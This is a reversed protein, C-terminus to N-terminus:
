RRRLLRKVPDRDGQLVKKVRRAHARRSCGGLPTIADRRGVGRHNLPELSGACHEDALRIHVLEGVVEGRFGAYEAGTM